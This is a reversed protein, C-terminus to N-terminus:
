LNTNPGPQQYTWRAATASSKDLWEGAAEAWKNADAPSYSERASRVARRAAITALIAYLNDIRDQVTKSRRATM